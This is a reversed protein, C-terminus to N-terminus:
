RPAGEDALLIDFRESLPDREVAAEHPTPQPSDITYV